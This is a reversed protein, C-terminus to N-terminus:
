NPLPTLKVQMNPNGPINGGIVVVLFKGDRSMAPANNNLSSSRDNTIFRYEKTLDNYVYHKHERNNAYTIYQGSADITAKSANESVLTIEATDRDFLFLDRRVNTDHTDNPILTNSTSSFLLRSGDASLGIARGRAEGSFLPKSVLTTIGTVRDLLFVDEVNDTDNAVVNSARTSFAIYRGDDSISAGMRVRANLPNGDVGTTAVTIEETETDYISVGYNVTSTFILYQSNGSFRPSHSENSSIVKAEKTELNRIVVGARSDTYAAYQGDPSFSPPLNFASEYSNDNNVNLFFSLDNLRDRVIINGKSEYTPIAPTGPLLNNARSFFAVYRGDTSIAPAMSDGNGLNGMNDASLIEEASNVQLTFIDSWATFIDFDIIKGKYRMRFEYTGAEALSLDYETTDASFTAITLFDTDQESKKQLETDKLTTLDSLPELILTFTTNTLASNPGQIELAVASSCIFFVLFFKISSVIIKLKM